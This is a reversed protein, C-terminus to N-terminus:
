VNERKIASIIGAAAFQNQAMTFDESIYDYFKYYSVGDIHYLIDGIDSLYVCKGVGLSNLYSSVKAVCEKKVNDFEYGDAILLDFVIDIKLEEAPLVKIDVNISKCKDIITQVQSVLQSDVTTGQGSIFLDVTGVGRNCPIIGASYVGDVQMATNIYFQANAPNIVNKYSNMIRRRLVEDSEGDIGGYTQQSNNVSDVGAIPTIMLNITEGAVNGATGGDYATIQVSIQTTNQLITCVEDTVFCVPTIEKTAVVTGKPIVIDVKAPNDVAFTVAGVAKTPLRRNIGRTQAFMDLYEGTATQVFMQNKLWATNVTLKYIEGALVRMRIGIDSEESPINGTIRKYENKMRQLIEDYTAIM